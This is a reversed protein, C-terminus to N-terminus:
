KLDTGTGDDTRVIKKEVKSRKWAAYAIWGILFPFPLALLGMARMAVMTYKGSMEDYAFCLIAMRDSLKGMKGNSAEIM